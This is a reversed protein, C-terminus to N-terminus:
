LVTSGSPVQHQPVKQWQDGVTESPPSAGHEQGRVDARNDARNARAAEVPQTGGPLNQGAGGGQHAPKARPLASRHALEGPHQSCSLHDDIVDASPKLGYTKNAKDM